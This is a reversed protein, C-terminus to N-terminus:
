RLGLTALWCCEGKRQLQLERGEQLHNGVWHQARMQAQQLEWEQV